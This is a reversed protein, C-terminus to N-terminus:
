RISWELVTSPENWTYGRTSLRRLSISKWWYNHCFGVCVFWNRLTCTLPRSFWNCINFMYWKCTRRLQVHLIDNNCGPMIAQLDSPHWPNDGVVFVPNRPVLIVLLMCAYIIYVAYLWLTYVETMCICIYIYITYLTMNACIYIYVCLCVCVCVKSIGHKKQRLCVDDVDPGPRPMNDLAKSSQANRTDMKHLDIWAFAAAM